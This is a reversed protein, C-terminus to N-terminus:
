VFFEFFRKLKEPIFISEEAGRQMDQVFRNDINQQKILKGKHLGNFIEVLSMAKAKGYNIFSRTKVFPHCGAPLLCSEDQGSFPKGDKERYTCVPVVLVNNDNDPNTIVVNLHRIEGRATRDPTSLFSQGKAM